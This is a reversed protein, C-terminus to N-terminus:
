SDGERGRWRWLLRSEQSGLRFMAM